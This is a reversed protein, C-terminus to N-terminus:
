RGSTKLDRILLSVFVAMSGITLLAGLAVAPQAAHSFHGQLYLWLGGTMAVFGATAVLVQTWALRGALRPAGRYYLGYLLMSVWGLLNLHAHVPALRFDQSIGMAIGLGMGTLAALGGTIFCFSWIPVKM